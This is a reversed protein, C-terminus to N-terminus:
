LSLIEKLIRFNFDTTQFSMMIDFAWQNLTKTRATDSIESSFRLINIVLPKNFWKHGKFARSQGNTMILLLVPTCRVEAQAINAKSVMSIMWFRSGVVSVLSPEELM